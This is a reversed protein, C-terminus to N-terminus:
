QVHSWCLWFSACSMLRQWNLFIQINFVHHTSSLIKRVCSFKLISCQILKFLQSLISQRCTFLQELFSTVLRINYLLVPMYPVTRPFHVIWRGAINAFFRTMNL